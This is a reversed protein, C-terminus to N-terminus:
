ARLKAAMTRRTTSSSRRYRPSLAPGTFFFFRCHLMLSSPSLSFLAEVSASEPPLPRRVWLRQGVRLRTSKKLQRPTPLEREDLVSVSLRAARSRSVRPLRRAIFRDLREGDGEPDVTFARQKPHTKRHREQVHGLRNQSGVHGWSSDM